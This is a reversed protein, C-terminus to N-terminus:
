TNWIHSFISLFLFTKTKKNKGIGFRRAVSVLSVLAPSDVMLGYDLLLSRCTIPSGFYFNRIKSDDFVHLPLPLFSFFKFYFALFLFFPPFLFSKLTFIFQGRSLLILQRRYITCIICLVPSAKPFGSLYSVTASATYPCKSRMKGVMSFHCWKVDDNHGLQRGVDTGDAITM